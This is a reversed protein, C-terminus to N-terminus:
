FLKVALHEEWDNSISKYFNTYEDKTIDEAKRMWIPQTNNVREYEHTVETITKTKKKKEEKEEKIEM